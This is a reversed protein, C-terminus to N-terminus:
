STHSDIGAHEKLFQSINNRFNQVSFKEAQVECDHATISYSNLEFKYVADIIAKVGQHQYFMGTKNEVVTELIGGKGYAIVPTGCAMAEVPTIGFDENSAFVFAKARKLHHRLLENTEYRIIEINPTARAAISNYEPGDGIVVLKHEPLNAFADVILNIKKYRVMRSATVYHTRPTPINKYFINDVPPYIVTSERNYNHKIRNQINKSNAIFHDVNRSTRMDWKQISNLVSNIIWKRFGTNLNYDDLYEKRLDWLYRMPTHCYCIHMQGSRKKVGKAVSHSSSIIVDFNKLDFKEVANPFLPLGYRYNKKSFSYNQLFSTHTKKGNLYYFRDDETLYDMLTFIEVDHDQLLYLFEKLVKEAGGPHILWDHVIAIRM